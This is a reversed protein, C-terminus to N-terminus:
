GAFDDPFTCSITRSCTITSAPGAATALNRSNKAPRIAFALVRAAYPAPPPAIGRM